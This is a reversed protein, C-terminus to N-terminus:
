DIKNILLTLDSNSEALIGRVGAKAAAEIDRHADGIFWSAAANLKFRAIAKEVMLSDPKRCICKGFDPHHPCYYIELLPIQAASLLNILKQHIRDLFAHNYLNKAVGGQNSIVVFQFGKAQMVKLFPVLSPNIHFDPESTVYNGIETNIIGDRDLFIAKQM